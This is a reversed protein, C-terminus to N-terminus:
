QLSCYVKGFKVWNSWKLIFYNSKKITENNENLEKEIELAANLMITFNNNRWARKAKMSNKSFLANHDCLYRIYSIEIGYIHIVPYQSEM